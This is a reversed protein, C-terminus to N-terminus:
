VPGSRRIIDKSICCVLNNVRVAVEPGGAVYSNSGKTSVTTRVICSSYISKPQVNMVKIINKVCRMISMEINRGKFTSTIYRYISGYRDLRGDGVKSLVLLQVKPLRARVMDVKASGIRVIIRKM